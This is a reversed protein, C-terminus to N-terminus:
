EPAPGLPMAVLHVTRSRAWWRGGAVLELRARITKPSDFSRRQRPAAAISAKTGSEVTDRGM